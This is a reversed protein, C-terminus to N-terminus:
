KKKKAGGKKYSTPSVKVSKNLGVKTGQKVQKPAVAVKKM